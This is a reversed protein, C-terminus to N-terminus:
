SLMHWIRLDFSGQLGVGFVVSEKSWSAALPPGLAVVGFAFGVFSIELLRQHVSHLIKPIVRFFGTCNTQAEKLIKVGITFWNSFGTAGAEMPIPLIQFLPRTTM